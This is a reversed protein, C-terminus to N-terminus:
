RWWRCADSRQVVHGAFEGLRSEVCLVSLVPQRDRSHRVLRDTCRQRRDLLAGWPMLAVCAPRILCFLMGGVALARWDWHAMLVVGLLTVLFVEMAREVLSGFSLMDGMMIGAAVQTDGLSNPTAM